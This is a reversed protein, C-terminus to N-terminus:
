LRMPGIAPDTRSARGTELHGAYRHILGPTAPSTVVIDYWGDSAALSWRSRAAQGPSAKIRRVRAEGAGLGYIPDMTAEVVGARGPALVLAVGGADEVLRLAPGPVATSGAFRRHFGNPGHVTLDYTELGAANWHGAAHRDGAGVTFRWPGARDTNDFVQFVAGAEGANVLDIFLRGDEVRADAALRYPLPRALRQPGQQATAAQVAPMKLHPSALSRKVRELYDATPPLALGVWDRNPRAFDFASTLDGCVSRRWDSIQPEMVGFRKELFRLTSTHDFVQSCVYGGRSWPSVVIAPVRIGLGLPHRGPIPWRATAM